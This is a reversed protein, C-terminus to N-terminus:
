THAIRIKNIIIIIVETDYRYRNGLSVTGKEEDKVDGKRHREQIWNGSCWKVRAIQETSVEANQENRIVCNEGIVKYVRM